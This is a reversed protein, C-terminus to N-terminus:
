PHVPAMAPDGDAGSPAWVAKPPCGGQATLVSHRAHFEPGLGEGM